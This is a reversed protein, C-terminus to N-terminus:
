LFSSCSDWGNRPFVHINKGKKLGDGERLEKVQCVYGLGGASPNLLQDGGGM